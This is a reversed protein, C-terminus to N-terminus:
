IHMRTYQTYEFTCVYTSHISLYLAVWLHTHVMFEWVYCSWVKCLENKQFSGICCTNLKTHKQLAVGLKGSLSNYSSDQLTNPYTCCDELQATSRLSIHQINTIQLTRYHVQTNNMNECSDSYCGSKLWQSPHNPCDAM